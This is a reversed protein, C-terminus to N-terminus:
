SKKRSTTTKPATHHYFNHYVKHTKGIYKFSTFLTIVDLPNFTSYSIDGSSKTFIQQAIYSVIILVIIITSTNLIQHPLFQRNKIKNGTYIYYISLLTLAFWILLALLVFATLMTKGFVSLTYFIYLIAFTCVLLNIIGHAILWKGYRIISQGEKQEWFQKSQYKISAM